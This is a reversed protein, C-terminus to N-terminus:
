SSKSDADDKKRNNNLAKLLGTYSFLAQQEKSDPFFVRALKSIKGIVESYIANYANVADATATKRTSKFSEQTVNASRLSEAFSTVLTIDTTPIGTDSLQQQLEPTMNKQYQFLLSILSETDGNGAAKFFDTYGLNRLLEKLTGKDTNYSAEVQAKMQSVAKYAKDEISYVIISQQRLTKANDVGFYQKVTDDLKKELSSLYEPTINTRKKQLTSQNAEANTLITSLVTIMDVDKGTYLRNNTAM